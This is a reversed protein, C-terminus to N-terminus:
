STAGKIIAFNLVVAESLASASVNTVHVYAGGAGLGHEVTYKRTQNTGANAQILMSDATGMMSNYFTFTVTAGAALAENHMTIQGSPKNLTVATSKSTAQTVTGGAGTGYGLVAPVNVTTQGYLAITGDTKIDMLTTQAVASDAASSPEAGLRIGVSNNFSIFGTAGTNYVKANGAADIYRNFWLGGNIVNTQFMTVSGAYGELYKFPAYANKTAGGTQSIGSAGLAGTSLSGPITVAGANDIVVAGNNLGLVGQAGSGYTYTNLDTRRNAVSAAGTYAIYLGSPSVGPAPADSSGFYSVLRVTTDTAAYGSGAGFGALGFATSKVNLTGSMTAAGSSSLTTFSGAAASSGGIVTGDITGGNIDPSTLTKNTLTEAGTLTPLPFGGAAAGNHVVVTNKSTDVTLEGSAGTFTSHSSTSGRRRQIQIAM